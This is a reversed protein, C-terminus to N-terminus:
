DQPRSKEPLSRLGQAAGLGLLEQFRRDIFKVSALAPREVFHWSLMAAGVVLPLSYLFLAHPDSEELKQHMMQEVPYHWIYIGYSYDGALNYFRLPGGPVFGVWIGLYATAPIILAEGAVYGWHYMALIAVGLGILGPWLKLHIKDQYVFFLVGILFAYSFHALHNIFAIERLDTFYTAFLYFLVFLCSLVPLLIGRVLLGTVGAFLVATYLIFDYRLTWLPINVEGAMPQNEFVGPLTMDPQLLMTALIYAWSASSSFYEALSLESVFPGIVLATVLTVLLLGPMVRMVRSTTYSVVSLRKQWSATVFMGSMTFFMNLATHGITYLVPHTEFSIDAVGSIFYAHGFMILLAGIVRLLNFNNNRGGMYDSLTHM